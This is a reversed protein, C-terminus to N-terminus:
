NVYKRRLSQTSKYVFYGITFGLITGGIIDLPYHVGLYIRSYSILIPMIFLWMWKNSYSKLNFIIFTLIAFSNTAHSSVFGFKGGRYFDGNPYAHLHLLDGIDLNHTPRYREFVNKFGMVSIRDGFLVCIAVGIILFLLLKLNKTRYFFVALFILLISWVYGGSLFWMLKDFFPNNLNNIALLLQRDLHEIKEIM